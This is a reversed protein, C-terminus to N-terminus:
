ASLLTTGLFRQTFDAVALKDDSTFRAKPIASNRRNFVSFYALCASPRRSFFQIIPGCTHRVAANGSLFLVSLNLGYVSCAYAHVYNHVLYPQVCMANQMNELDATSAQAFFLVNPNIDYIADWAAFYLERAGPLRYEPNYEWNINYTDPENMVNIILRQRITPYQDLVRYCRIIATKLLCSHTCGTERHKHVTVMRRDADLFFDHLITPSNTANSEAPSQM